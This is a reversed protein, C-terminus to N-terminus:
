GSKQGWVSSGLGGGLERAMEVTEGWRPILLSPKPQPHGLHPACGSDEKAACAWQLLGLGVERWNKSSYKPPQFEFLFFIYMLRKEPRGPLTQNARTMETHNQSIPAHSLVM